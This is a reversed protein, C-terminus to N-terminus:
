SIYHRIQIYLQMLSSLLLLRSNLTFILTILKIRGFLRIDSQLWLIYMSIHIM